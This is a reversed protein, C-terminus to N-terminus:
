VNSAAGSMSAASRAAKRREPAECGESKSTPAAGRRKSTHCFRKQEL